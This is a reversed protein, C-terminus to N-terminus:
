VTLSKITTHWAQTHSHISRNTRDCEVIFWACIAKFFIWSRLLRIKRSLPSALCFVPLVNFLCEKLGTFLFISKHLIKFVGANALIKVFMYSTRKHYTHKTARNHRGIFWCWFSLQVTQFCNTSHTLLPSSLNWSVPNSALSQHFVLPRYTSQTDFYTLSSPCLKNRFPKTYCIYEIRAWFWARLHQLLACSMCCFM